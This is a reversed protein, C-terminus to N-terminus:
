SIPSPLDIRGNCSKCQRGIRRRARIAEVFFGGQVFEADLAAIVEHRCARKARMAAALCAIDSRLNHPEPPLCVIALALSISENSHTGGKM